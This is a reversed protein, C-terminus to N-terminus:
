QFKYALGVRITNDTLYHRAPNGPPGAGFASNVLIDTFAGYSTYRYEARATWNPNFAYEVGAGLTWGSKTGSFSDTRNPLTIWNYTRSIGTIAWGGTGYFLLNGAAYGLRARASGQWRRNESTQETGVVLGPGLTDFYASTNAKLSTAEIDGEVGVVINNSLQYNYGAFLGGVIGNTNQNVFDRVGPIFGPNYVKVTDNAWAGGVDAGVYFGTWTFIPAPALVPPPSKRAPLDAAFAVSTLATTAALAVLFKHM